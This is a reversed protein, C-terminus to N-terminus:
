TRGGPPVRLTARFGESPGTSWTLDGRDGYLNVLRQRVLDLGRGAAGAVEEPDAGEGDDQVTVLMDGEGEGELAVEIRVSGGEPRPSLGHKIANELLTQLSFPPLMRGRAEDEVDWEVRLRDALRLKELALYRRAVALEKELPVADIEQRQLISAYRILEAVDEIAQEAAPPDARVLLMLSHLTNFVFHPNFQARLAKAEARARLVAERAALARSEEIRELSVAWALYGVLIVYLFLGSLVRTVFVSAGGSGEALPDSGYIAVTAAGAVAAYVLGVVVHLGITRLVSLEPRILDRRRWAIVAAPLAYALVSGGTVWVVHTLSGGEALMVSVVLGGYALWALGFIAWFARGSLSHVRM